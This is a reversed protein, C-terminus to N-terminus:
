TNDQGGDRYQLCSFVTIRYRLQMQTMGQVPKCHLLGFGILQSKERATKLPNM